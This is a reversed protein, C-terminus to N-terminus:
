LGDRSLGSFLCFDAFGFGALGFVFRGPAFFFTHPGQKVSFLAANFTFAEGRRLFGCRTSVKKQNFLPLPPASAGARVDCSMFIM